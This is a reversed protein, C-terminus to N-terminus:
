ANYMCLIYKNDKFYFMGFAIEPNLSKFLRPEKNVKLIAYEQKILKVTEQTFIKSFTRNDCAAQEASFFSLHNGLCGTIEGKSNFMLMCVPSSKVHPYSLVGAQLAVNYIKDKRELILEKRFASNFISSTTNVVHIDVRDWERNKQKQIFALYGFTHSYIQLPCVLLSKIERTSLYQIDFSNDKPIKESASIYILEGEKLKSKIWLTSQLDIPVDPQNTRLSPNKWVHQNRISDDLGVCLEIQDINFTMGIDHVANTITKKLSAYEIFSTSINTILNEAKLKKNLTREMKQRHTVDHIIADFEGKKNIDTSSSLYIEIWTLKQDKRLFRFVKPLNISGEQTLSKMFVKYDDPHLNTLFADPNNYLEQPTFGLIKNAAPSVYQFSFRPRTTIHVIIENSGAIARSFLPNDQNKLAKKKLGVDRAIAIIQPNLSDDLTKLTIEVPIRKKSKNKFASTFYMEKNELLDEAINLIRKKEGTAFLDLPEMEVIDKKEIGILNAFTENVEILRSPVGYITEMAFISDLSHDFYNKYQTNQQHSSKTSKSSINLQSKLADHEKELAKLKALLDQYQKDPVM